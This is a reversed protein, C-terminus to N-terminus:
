ARHLFHLVDGDQVVYERGQIAVKGAQRCEKESKYYLYDALKIVEVKIFNAIFDTHIIGAAQPALMGQRLTWARVEKPGATFYTILGLFHYVKRILSKLSTDALDYAQLFASQEELPLSAIQAELDACVILLPANEKEVVERLSDVYPNGGMQLAGEDVNAVYLIPKNTLLSWAQVIHTHKSSVELTRANNGKELYVIFTELLDREELAEKNAMKVMKEIKQCRKKLTALDKQQLEQDIIAKDFVPDVNGAVHLVNPDEFCRIMHLLIDVERIHALFQNGLGEGQCAGQVLGAIDVFEITAPIVCQPCLLAALQELRQDPVSVRGVNPEITCFPFNASAVQANAVANFLTSKGVNPLGVIGTRLTM